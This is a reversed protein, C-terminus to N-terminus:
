KTLRMKPLRMLFLAAPIFYLLEYWNFHAFLLDVLLKVTVVIIFSIAGWKEMTWVGSAAVFTFVVMLANVAPYITDVGGKLTVGGIFSYAIELIGYAFVILCLITILMPRPSKRKGKKKYGFEDQRSISM